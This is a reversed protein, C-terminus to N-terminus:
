PSYTIFSVLAGFPYVNLSLNSFAETLSFLFDTSASGFLIDFVFIFPLISNVFSPSLLSGNFPASNLSYLADSLFKSFSISVASLLSVPFTINLSM